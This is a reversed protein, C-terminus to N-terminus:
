ETKTERDLCDQIHKDLRTFLSQRVPNWPHDIPPWNKSWYYEEFTGKTWEEDPAFESFQPSPDSKRVRDVLDAKYDKFGQDEYDYPLPIPHTSSYQKYLQYDLMEVARKQAILVNLETQESRVMHPPYNDVLYLKDTLDGLKRGIVLNHFEGWDTDYHLLDPFFSIWKKPSVGLSQAKIKYYLDLSAEILRGLSSFHDPTIETELYQSLEKGEIKQQIQVIAEQGTQDQGLVLHYKPLYQSIIPDSDLLGMTRKVATIWEIGQPLSNKGDVIKEFARSDTQQGIVKVLWEPHGPIEVIRSMQGLPFPSDPMKIKFPLFEEPVKDQLPM